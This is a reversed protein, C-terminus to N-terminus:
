RVMFGAVFALIEHFIRELYERYCSKPTEEIVQEIKVKDIIPENKM